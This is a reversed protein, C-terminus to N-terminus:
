ARGTIGNYTWGRTGNVSFWFLWVPGGSYSGLSTLRNVNSGNVDVVFVDSHYAPDHRDSVFALRAGDPSWSPDVDMASNRTVNTLGSGDANVIFVDGNGVNWDTFVLRTGDPSWRPGSYLGETQTLRVPAGGAAEIIYIHNNSYLAPQHLYAIRTGDPSWSPSKSLGNATLARWPSDAPAAADVVYLDSNFDGWPCESIFGHIVAVALRTGDASWAPAGISAFPGSRALSRMTRDAVSYSIVDSTLSGTGTQTMRTFSFSRAFSFQVVSVTATARIAGVAATVTTAGLSIATVVGNTKGVTTVAPDASSWEFTVNTTQGAADTARATLREVDGAILTLASPSISVAVPPDPARVSVSATASLTGAIATVTTTGVAIAIVSGDSKGVSAIAPDASSWEFSADIMRGKSDDARATLFGEDGVILRLGSPSISLRVAPDLPPDLIRGSEGGCALVTAAAVSLLSHMPSHRWVERFRSSM